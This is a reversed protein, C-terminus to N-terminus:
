NAIYIRYYDLRCPFVDNYVFNYIKFIYIMSFADSILTITNLTEWYERLHCNEVTHHCAHLTAQYSWWHQSTERTEFVGESEIAIPM